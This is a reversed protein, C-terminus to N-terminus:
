GFLWWAVALAALTNFLTALAYVAVPRLGEAVLGRFSTELGISVFALTLFANRLSAVAELAARDLHGTGALASAAFSAAVFGLVFKPFRAWLERPRPRAGAGPELRTVWYLSLLATVAGILLNHSIKVVAAVRMAREGYLAGAALVAATTDINGGIWAGAVADPLALLRAALPQLVMLPLAFAVVLAAAYAVQERRARTVGAAAVAGSMGVSVATALIARLRPDVGLAGAVLWTTVFVVLVLVVSQLIARVGVQLVDGVSIGAGLLVVGIKLYLETRAARRVRGRLGMAGLLGRAALGLGAAWLPYDVLGLGPLRRAEGALWRSLLALSLVLAGSLAWSAARRWVVARAALPAGVPGAM